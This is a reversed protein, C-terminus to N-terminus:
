RLDEYAPVRPAVTEPFHECNKLDGVWAAKTKWHAGCVRCQVWSFDSWVQKYGNFASRSANRELVFWQRPRDNSGAPVTLPRQKESCTCASM